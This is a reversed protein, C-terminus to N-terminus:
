AHEKTYFAFDHALQEATLPEVPDAEIASYGTGPAAHPTSTGLPAEQQSSSTM